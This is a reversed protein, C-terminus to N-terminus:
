PFGKREMKNIRNSEKRQKKLELFQNTTRKLLHMTTSSGM